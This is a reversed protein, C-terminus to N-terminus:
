IYLEDELDESMNNEELTDQILEDFYINPYTLKSKLDAKLWFYDAKFLLFIDKLINIYFHLLGQEKFHLLKFRLDLIV